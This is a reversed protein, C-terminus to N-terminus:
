RPDGEALQDLNVDAPLAEVDEHFASPGAPVGRTIEFITQGINGLSLALATIGPNNPLEERSFMADLRRLSGDRMTIVGYKSVLLCHNFDISVVDDGLAALYRLQSKFSGGLLHVRRGAFREVPLPTGGYSTPVSYGLVYRDPIKAICDYKPIVIVNEAVTQMDAAMDMVEDFTYYAVGADECQQPTMLDRVTAYKPEFEAVYDRHKRHDYDHWENDIFTLPFKWEWRDRRKLAMTVKSNVGVKLGAEVAIFAGVYNPAITFIADLPLQRPSPKPPVLDGLAARDADPTLLNTDLIDLDAADYGTGDLDPLSALLESLISHDYDAVDNLRNDVAVIRAAEEEDVDVFTVALHSWGLEKAALWTHNGALAENRRGTKTGVNVVIPRYQGNKQLSKKIKEVDGIRPNRYYPQVDGIPHLLAHLEPLVKHTMTAEFTV